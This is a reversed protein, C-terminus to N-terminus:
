LIESHLIINSISNICLSQRIEFSHIENRRFKNLKEIHNKVIDIQNRINYRKDLPLIGDSGLLEQINNNYKIFFQAYVIM